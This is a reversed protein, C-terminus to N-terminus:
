MARVFAKLLVTGASSTSSQMAFAFIPLVTGSANTAWTSLSSSVYNQGAIPALLAGAAISTDTSLYIAADALGYVQCLGYAGIGIAAPLIGAFANLEGTNAQMVSVGNGTVVDWQAATGLPLISGESNLVTVFVKEANTRNVRQFLM